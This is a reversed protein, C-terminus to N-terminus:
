APNRPGATSAGASSAHSGAPGPASAAAASIEPIALRRAPAPKKRPPAGLVVRHAAAGSRRARGHRGEFDSSGRRRMATARAADLEGSITRCAARIVSGASRAASALAPWFRAPRRAAVRRPSRVPRMTRSTTRCGSGVGVVASSPSPSSKKSSRESEAIRGAVRVCRLTAETRKWTAVSGSCTTQRAARLTGSARQIQIRDPARACTTEDPWRPRPLFGPTGRATLAGRKPESPMSMTPTAM